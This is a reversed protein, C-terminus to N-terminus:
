LIQLPIDHKEAYRIAIEDLHNLKKLFAPDHIQFMREIAADVIPEPEDADIMQAIEIYDKEFIQKCYILFDESAAILNETDTNVELTQVKKLATNTPQILNQDLYAKVTGNELQGSELVLLRNNRKLERIENFYKSNYKGTIINTNLVTIELHKQPSTHNCSVVTFLILSLLLLKIITKMKRIM